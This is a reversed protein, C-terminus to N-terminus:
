NLTIKTHKLREEAEKILEPLKKIFTQKSMSRGLYSIPILTDLKTLKKSRKM